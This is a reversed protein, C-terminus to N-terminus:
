TTEPTSPTVADKLISQPKNNSDKGAKKLTAMKARREKRNVPEIDEQKPTASSMTGLMFVQSVKSIWGIIPKGEVGMVDPENLMNDIFEIYEKNKDKTEFFNKIQDEASLEDAAAAEDFYRFLFYIFDRNFQWLRGKETNLRQEYKLRFQEGEDIEDKLPMLQKQIKFIKSDHKDQEEQPIAEAWFKDKEVKQEALMQGLLQDSPNKAKSFDTVQKAHKVIIEEPLLSTKYKEWRVEEEHLQNNVRRQVPHVPVRDLAHKAAAVSEHAKIVPDSKQFATLALRQVNTFERLPVDIGGINVIRHQQETAQDTNQDSVVRDNTEQEM